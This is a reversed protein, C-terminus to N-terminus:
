ILEHVCFVNSIQIAVIPPSVSPHEIGSRLQAGLLEGRIQFAAVPGDPVRKRMRKGGFPYPKFSPLSCRGLGQEVGTVKWSDFRQSSAPRLNLIFVGLKKTTKRVVRKSIDDSVRIRSALPPLVRQDAHNLMQHIVGRVMASLYRSHKSLEAGINRGNIQKNKHVRCVTLRIQSVNQCAILERAPFPQQWPSSRSAQLDFAGQSEVAPCRDSCCPGFLPQSRNQRRRCLRSQIRTGLDRLTTEKEAPPRGTPNCSLQFRRNPTERSIIFSSHHAVLQRDYAFNMM